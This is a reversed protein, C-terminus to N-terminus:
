PTERERRHEGREIADAFDYCGCTNGRLWAVVDAREAECRQQAEEALRKHRNAESMVGRAREDRTAVEARLKDVESLLAAVDAAVWRPVGFPNSRALRERITDINLPAPPKM